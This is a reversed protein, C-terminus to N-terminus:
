GNEKNVRRKRKKKEPSNSTRWVYPNVTGHGWTIGKVADQGYKDYYMDFVNAQKQSRTVDLCETGECIYTVNFADSPLSKDKAKDPTTKELIVECHYENKREGVQTM